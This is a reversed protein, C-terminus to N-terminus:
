FVCVCLWKVDPRSHLLTTAGDNRLAYREYCVQARRMGYNGAKFAYSRNVPIDFRHHSVVNLRERVTTNVYAEDFELDTCLYTAYDLGARALVDVVHTGWTAWTDSAVFGRLQGSLLIAVDLAQAHAGLLGLWAWCRRMATKFIRDVRLQQGDDLARTDVADDAQLM